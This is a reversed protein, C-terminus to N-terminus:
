ARLSDPAWDSIMKKIAARDEIKGQLVRECLAPLEADSAFRLAILQATTFENIRSQLADPLLGSLRLRMELRIVRDQVTLAFIRAYYSLAGLALATLAAMATDLSPSQVARYSTWLINLFLVLYVLLYAPRNRRHNAYTQPTSM